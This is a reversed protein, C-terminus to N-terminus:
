AERFLLRSALASFGDVDVQGSALEERYANLHAEYDKRVTETEEQYAAELLAAERGYEEDHLARAAKEGEATRKDAEAQADDVLSAAEAEIDLLHQLVDEEEM